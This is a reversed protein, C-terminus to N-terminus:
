REMEEDLKKRLLPVVVERMKKSGERELELSSTLAAVQVEKESLNKRMRSVDSSTARSIEEAKRREERV